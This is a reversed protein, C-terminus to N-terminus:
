VTRGEVGDAALAQDAVRRAEAVVVIRLPMERNRVTLEHRPYGPATVGARDMVQESVVLECQYEKTLAELRSAVHVTDGVATLYRTEGYGMEGVVAPGVHIGIGLQLPAGLDAGFARSVEEVRAVMAGAARLAQRCASEPGTEVGFLAMVGDGTYQNAIGGAEAIAGGVAEFYRNLFFVLDYPLKHEALRTFGRLDAFLVAIEREKGHRATSGSHLAAAEVTAPLLPTVALDREPRLQCALRVNPPAGVRELVRLEQPGPPPLLAPDGAVRIRCTSCRGRGGCVSAHPIGASRSAELVTWGAPVVVNRGEPYSVRVKPRRRGVYERGVRVVLTLALLGWVTNSLAERVGVLRARQATSPNRTQIMLRQAFGPDRALAAVERGAQAFGLYGLV